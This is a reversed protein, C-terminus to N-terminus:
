LPALIQCGPRKIMKISQLPTCLLLSVIEKPLVCTTKIVRAIGAIM